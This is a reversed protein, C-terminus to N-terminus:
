EFIRHEEGVVLPGEELGEKGRRGSGGAAARGEVVAEDQLGDEPLEGGAGGPVVEGGAVRRVLGAVATVALPAAGAQEPLDEGGEVLVQEGAAAEVELLSQQIAVEDEGTLADRVGGAQAAGPLEGGGQEEQAYGVADGMANSQTIGVADGVADGVANGMAYGVADEWLGEAARSKLLRMGGGEGM